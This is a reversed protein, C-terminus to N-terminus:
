LTTMTLSLSRYSMNYFMNYFMMVAIIPRGSTCTITNASSGMGNAISYVSINYAVGPTANNYYSIVISCNYFSVTQNSSNPFDSNMSVYTVNYSTINSTSSDNPPFIYVELFTENAMGCQVNGPM